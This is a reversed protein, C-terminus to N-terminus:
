EGEMIVIATDKVTILYEADFFLTVKFVPNSTTWPWQFHRQDRSLGYVVKYQDAITFIARDQVM